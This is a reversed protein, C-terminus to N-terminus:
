QIAKLIQKALEKSRSFGSQDIYGEKVMREAHETAFVEIEQDTLKSQVCGGPVAECDHQACSGKSDDCKTGACNNVVCVFETYKKADLLPTVGSKLSSGESSSTVNNASSVVNDNNKTCSCIALLFM